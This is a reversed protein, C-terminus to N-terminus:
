LLTNAYCRDSQGVSGGSGTFNFMELSKVFAVSGVSRVSVCHLKLGGWAFDILDTSLRMYHSHLTLNEMDVQDEPPAPHSRAGTCSQPTAGGEPGPCLAPQLGLHEHHSATRGGGSRDGAGPQEGLRVSPLPFTPRWRPGPRPSGRGCAGRGHGYGGDLTLPM